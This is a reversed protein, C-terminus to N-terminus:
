ILPPRKAFDGVFDAVERLDAVSGDNLVSLTPTAQRWENESPHRDDDPLGPRDIRVIIGGAERVADIENLFRVDTIVVPRGERRISQAAALGMRVWFDADLGRIAVGLNQLFTRVEHRTKAGEWGVEGVFESLTLTGSGVLPDAVLAAAKLPDAFAVREFGHTERLLDAFTDKGCRKMGVLGILPATM